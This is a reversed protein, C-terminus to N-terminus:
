TILKFITPCKDDLISYGGLISYGQNLNSEYFINVSETLTSDYSTLTSDYSTLANTYYNTTIICENTIMTYQCLKDNKILTSHIM